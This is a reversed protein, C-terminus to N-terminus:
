SEGLSHIEQIEKDEELKKSHLNIFKYLLQRLPIPLTLLDFDIKDKNLQGQYPITLLDGQDRDMFYSKILAYILEHSEHDMTKIKKVFASKQAITLDKQPLSSILSTYLPFTTM